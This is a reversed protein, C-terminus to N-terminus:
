PRRFDSRNLPWSVASLQPHDRLPLTDAEPWAPGLEVATAGVVLWEMEHPNDHVLVQGDLSLLERSADGRLAYRRSM